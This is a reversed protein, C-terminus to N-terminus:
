APSMNLIADSSEAGRQALVAGVSTHTLAGAEGRSAWRDAEDRKNM